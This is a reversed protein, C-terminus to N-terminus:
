MRAVRSRRRYIVVLVIGTILSFPWITIIALVFGQLINMGKMIALGLESFFPITTMSRVDPVIAVIAQQPASFQVSLTAYNVDDLLKLNEIRRDTKEDAADQKYHGVQLAEVSNDALKEAKVVTQTDAYQNKIANGLYTYTEDYQNFIRKSTFSSMGTLINMVSDTLAAPVRIVMNASPTYSSVQKISDAAYYVEKIEGAENVMNSEMVMGGVGNVLQEAKQVAPLVDKVECVLSGKKIIKRSPAQLSRIDTAFRTSDAASLIDRENQSNCAALWLLPLAAALLRIRM